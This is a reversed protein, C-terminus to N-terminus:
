IISENRMRLPAEAMPITSYSCHEKSSMATTFFVFQHLTRGALSRCIMKRLGRVFNGFCICISHFRRKPNGSRLNPAVRASALCRPGEPASPQPNVGSREPSIKKIKRPDGQGRKPWKGTASTPLSSIHL